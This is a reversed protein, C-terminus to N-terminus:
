RLESALEFAVRYHGQIFAVSLSEARPEMGRYADLLGALPTVRESVIQQLADNDCHLPHQADLSCTGDSADSPAAWGSVQQQLAGIIQALGAHRAAQAQMQLLADPLPMPPIFPHPATRRVPEAGPFGIRPLGFVSGDIAAAPAAPPAAARRSVPPQATARARAPAAAHRVALPAPAAAPAKSAVLRMSMRAARAPEASENNRWAISLAAAHALISGAIVWALTPVPQFPTDGASERIAHPAM